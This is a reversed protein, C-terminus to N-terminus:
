FALPLVQTDGWGTMVTLVGPQDHIGAQTWGTFHTPKCAITTAGSVGILILLISAVSRRNLDSTMVFLAM